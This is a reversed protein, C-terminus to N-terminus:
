PQNAAAVPPVMQSFVREGQLNALDPDTRATNLLSPQVTLATALLQLAQSRRQPQEKGLLAYVCASQYIALPPRVDAKLLQKLEALAEDSKGLRAFLVARSGIADTDRPQFQLILNLTELAQSTQELHESQVHALNMLVMRSAPELERASQLDREALAPEEPLYSLARAVYSLADRPPLQQGLKRDAKAAAQDNRVRHSRALSFYVRTERFNHNLADTFDAIAEQHKGQEQRALGRNFYTAANAQLSLAHDFDGEAELWRKQQLFVMGRLQWAVELDSGLAVAANAAAEAENLQQQERYFNALALWAFADRPRRSTLARLQQEADPFKEDPQRTALAIIM